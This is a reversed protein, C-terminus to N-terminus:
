NSQKIKRQEKKLKITLNCVETFIDDINLNDKASTEFYKVRFKPVTYRSLRYAVNEGEKRKVQRNKSDAKNGVIIFPVLRHTSRFFEKIWFDIRNFTERRTLDFVIIAANVDRYFNKRINQYYDQGGLDIINIDYTKDGIVYEKHDMTAAITTLHEEVFHRHMFRRRISSRGVASDGILIINLRIPENNNTVKPKLKIKNNSSSIEQKNSIEPKEIIEPKNSIEPKEIIEQKNSIESKEIIEQKNNIASKERTPKNEEKIIKNETLNINEKIDKNAIVENEKNSTSSSESSDLGFFEKFVDETLFPKRNKELESLSDIIEDDDEQFNGHISNIRNIENQYYELNENYEDVSIEDDLFLQYQEQIWDYLEDLYEKWEQDTIKNSM